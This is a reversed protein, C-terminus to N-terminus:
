YMKVEYVELEEVRFRSEGGSIEYDYTQGGFHSNNKISCYGGKKLCSDFIQFLNNKFTPGYNINCWIAFENPKENNYIKQNSVSFGFARTDRSASGLNPKNVDIDRTMHEWNKFTFGGFIYGKKTKILTINPGLKDCKKHFDSAKDGDETARYVLNFVITKIKPHIEKIRNVLFKIENDKVIKSDIHNNETQISSSYNSEEYNKNPNQNEYQNDMEYNQKQKIDKSKIMIQYGNNTQIINNNRNGKNYQPIENNEMYPYNNNIRESNMNKKINRLKENNNYINSDKSILVKSVKEMIDNTKKDLDKTFKELNKTINFLQEIKIDLDDSQKSVNAIRKELKDNRKESNNKYNDDIIKENEIKKFQNEFLHIINEINYLKNTLETINKKDDSKRLEVNPKNVKEKLQNMLVELSDIKNYIETDNQKEMLISLNQIINDIEYDNLKTEIDKAYNELETIKQTYINSDDEKKSDKININKLNNELTNIKSDLNNIINEFNSLKNTVENNSNQLDEINPSEKLTNLNNELDQFKSDFTSIINDIDNLKKNINNIDEKDKQNEQINTNQTKNENQINAITINNQEIKEELSNLKEDFVKLNNENNNKENELGNKIEGLQNEISQLNTSLENIIDDYKNNNIENSPENKVKPESEISKRTSLKENMQKSIEDIDFKIKKNNKEIEENITTNITKIQENINDVKNNIENIKNEYGDIIKKNENLNKEIDIIKQNLNEFKNKMNNLDNDKKNINNKMENIIRENEEKMENQIKMFLKNQSSLQNNFNENLENIIKLLEGKVLIIDANNNQPINEVQKNEKKMSEKNFSQIVENKSDPQEIKTETKIETKDETIIDQNENVSIKNSEEISKILNQQNDEIKLPLNSSNEANSKDTNKIINENNNENEESHRLNKLNIEGKEVQIGGEQDQMKNEMIDVGEEVDGENVQEHGNQENNNSILLENQHGEEGELDNLTKFLVFNIDIKGDEETISLSLEIKEDDIIKIEKNSDNLNGIIYQFAINEDDINNFFPNLNKLDDFSFENQFFPKNEDEKDILRLLLKNEDTKGIVLLYSDENIQLDFAYVDQGDEEANENENINEEEYEEVGLNMEEVNENDEFNEIYEENNQINEDQESM